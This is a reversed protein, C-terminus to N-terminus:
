RGQRQGMPLGAVDQPNERMEEHRVFDANREGLGNIVVLNTEEAERKRQPHQHQEASNELFAEVAPGLVIMLALAIRNTCRLSFEGHGFSKEDCPDQEDRTKAENVRKRFGSSEVVSPGVPSDPIQQYFIRVVSNIPM